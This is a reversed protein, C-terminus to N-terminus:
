EETNTPEDLDIEPSEVVLKRPKLEAKVPQSEQNWGLSEYYPLKFPDCWRSEGARYIRIRNTEVRM